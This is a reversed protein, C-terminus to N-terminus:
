RTGMKLRRTTIRLQQPEAEAQWLEEWQQRSLPNQCPVGAFEWFRREMLDSMTRIGLRVRYGLAVFTAAMFQVPRRNEMAISNVTPVIITSVAQREIGNFVIVVAIKPLV